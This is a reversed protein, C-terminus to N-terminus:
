FKQLSKFIGYTIVTCRILHSVMKKFKLKLHVAIAPIKICGILCSQWQQHIEFIRDPRSFVESSIYAISNQQLSPFFAVSVYPIIWVSKGGDQM